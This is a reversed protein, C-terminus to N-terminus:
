VGKDAIARARGTDVCLSRRFTTHGAVTGGREGSEGHCDLIRGALRNDIRHESFGGYLTQRKPGGADRSRRERSNYARGRGASAMRGRGFRLPRYDPRIRLLLP